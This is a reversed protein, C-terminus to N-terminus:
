PIVRVRYFRSEGDTPLPDAIKLTDAPAVLNTLVQWNPDALREKWEVQYTCNPQTKLNLEFFSTSASIGSSTIKPQSVAIGPSGIDGNVYAAFAGSEGAVSLDGFTRTALDYGFTVGRTASSFVADAVKDAVNTAAANWLDIADGAAGFGIDEYTIIQLNPPLNSGGWWAKFQAPSMDRVMVVSEGPKIIVPMEITQADDFSHHDDDFRYGLLNVPWDGLNTLEWWDDHDLTSDITGKSESSMVETIALNPKPTVNVIFSINTGGAVNTLSVSYVGSQNTQVNSLTLQSNTEGVLDVGNFQWQYSPYGGAEIEFSPSQGIYADMDAPAEVIQPPTAVVFSAIALGSWPSSIPPKNAGTLNHHSPDYARALFTTNTNLVVPGSYINANPDFSGGTARPDSGNTSYYITAGASAALKVEFGPLIAGGNKEFVPKALFNTDMFHLRDTYWRKLFAVEGAYTGNFQYSYGSNSVLGSRPRTLSWRAVERPQEHQLEAAFADIDAFVNNTSLVGERLDEYRDIWEQWFDVDTFMRGWWPYNFFDTGLDGLPSQWFYPSFDRGDTSGQSRDFDWLPGFTLKGERDKYFFASLRLADVNFAVVNLIHHDIWSPVDVYARFGNLPDSYNPGNLTSGFAAMYSQLYQQQPARQPQKIDEEKPDVYVITQGAAHFGTEGTGLRDIKMMYGGTVNTVSNDWPHLDDVSHLKQIDVRNKNRKPKEELVYIGNYNASTIPGGSTNIYVVVYRTRPAYRGMENSLKYILPNHMLVPEFNNPAYLVWDSESPLGLPSCNKDNDLEDRFEVSFSQKPLGITSSGRLHIGAREDFEPSNTLSAVGNHPEFITINAFQRDEVPVGGAGFNHIVLLPLDSTASRVSSGLEIYSESHVPGPMLGPVFSRARIQVSDSITLPNTYTPSNTEPLTGDLTYHIIAQPNECSLQLYFLNAYTGGPVSFGVEPAFNTGSTENAEGPTPSPFYGAYKPNVVDRGYAVDPYQRPYSDFSSVVNGQQDTLALYGGTPPLRFNTHLEAVPNNRDKGSAFLVLYDQSGISVNPFRWKTPQAPDDTLGWNNLSVTSVTPNFIEIWGSYDGDEDAITTQNTAMFETIGTQAWGTARSAELTAWIVFDSSSGISSNLAQIAIVNTGPVLFNEPQNLIILQVPVPEGLAGSSPQDFAIEGDPVNFRAVQTGNIWAVFGDDSLATLRLQSINNGNTVVFTQRMYICSYEGKMDDLLTNGTYATGSGPNDEYYFPAEGISWSSDDFDISRWATTDPSSAETRGKYFKWTANTSFLTQANSFLTSAALLFVACFQKMMVFVDLNIVCGRM